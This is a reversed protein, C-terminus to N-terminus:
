FPVAVAALYHGRQARNELTEIESVEACIQDCLLRHSVVPVSSPINQKCEASYRSRM